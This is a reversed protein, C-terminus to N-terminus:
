IGALAAEEERRFIRELDLLILLRDGHKGVGAIFASELGTVVLDPAPAVQSADLHLVESVRDVILGVTTGPLRAVVIRAHRGAAEAAMGLRKRLDVVPLIRGRLNVVGEIFDPARPVRTIEPLRIVEQVCGIEVAYEEAGLHFSVLQSM